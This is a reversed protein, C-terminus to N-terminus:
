LAEYQATSYGENEKTEDTQGEDVLRARGEQVLRDWVKKSDRSLSYTSSTFRINQGKLHDIIKLYAARGYGKGRAADVNITNLYATAEGKPPRSIQLTFSGVTQGQENKILFDQAMMTGKAIKQLRSLNEEISVTPLIREQNQSLNEM